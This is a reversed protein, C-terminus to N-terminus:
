GVSARVLDEAQGRAGLKSVKGQFRGKRGGGKGDLIKAVKPQSGPLTIILIPDDAFFLLLCTHCSPSCCVDCDDM